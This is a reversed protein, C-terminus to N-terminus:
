KYILEIKNDKLENGLNLRYKLMDSLKLSIMTGHPMDKFEYIVRSNGDKQESSKTYKALSIVKMHSDLSDNADGGTVMGKKLLDEPLIDDKSKIEALILKVNNNDLYLTKATVNKGNITIVYNWEKQALSIIETNDLFKKLKQSYLADFKKEFDSEKSDASSKLNEDEKSFYKLATKYETKNKIFACVLIINISLSILAILLLIGTKNGDIKKNNKMQLVGIVQNATKSGNNLCFAM